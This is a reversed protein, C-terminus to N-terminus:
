TTGPGTRWISSECFLSPKASKESPVHHSWVQIPTQLPYTFESVRQQWRWSGQSTVTGDLSNCLTTGPHPSSMHLAPPFSGHWQTHRCVWMYVRCFQGSGSAAVGRRSPVRGGPSCLSSLSLIDLSETSLRQQGLKQRVDSRLRHRVLRCLQAANPLCSFTHCKTCYKATSLSRM